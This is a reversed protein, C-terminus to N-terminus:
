AEEMDRCTGIAKRMSARNGKKTKSKQMKSHIFMSPVLELMIRSMENVHYTRMGTSVVSSMEYHLRRMKINLTAGWGTLDPTFGLYSKKGDFLWELGAAGM